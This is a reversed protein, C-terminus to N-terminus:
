AKVKTKKLACDSNTNINKARGQPTKFTTFPPYDETAYLSGINDRQPSIDGINRYFLKNIENVINVGDDEVKRSIKEFIVQQLMESMIQRTGLVRAGGNNCEMVDYEAFTAKCRKLMKRGKPAEIDELSRNVELEEKGKPLPHKWAISFKM